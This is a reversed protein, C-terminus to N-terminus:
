VRVRWRVGAALGPLPRGVRGSRWLRLAASRVRGSCGRLGTCGRVRGCCTARRGARGGAGSRWARQARQPTCQVARSTRRGSRGGRSGRWGGRGGRGSSGWLPQVRHATRLQRQWLVRVGLGRCLWRRGAGFRRVREAVACSVRKSTPTQLLMCVPGRQGQVCVTSGVCLAAWAWVRECMSGLMSCVCVWM